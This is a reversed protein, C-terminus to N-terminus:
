KEPGAQLIFRAIVVTAGAETISEITDAGRVMEGDGRDGRCELVLTVNPLDAQANCVYTDESVTLTFGTLPEDATPTAKLGVLERLSWICSGAVPMLLDGNEDVPNLNNNQDVCIFSYDRSKGVTIQQQSM